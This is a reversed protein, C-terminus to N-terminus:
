RDQFWYEATQRALNTRIDGLLAQENTNAVGDHSLAYGLAEILWERENWGLKYTKTRGSKGYDDILSSEISQLIETPSPEITHEQPENKHDHWYPRDDKQELRFRIADLIAKREIYTRYSLALSSRPIVKRHDEMQEDARAGSVAYDM